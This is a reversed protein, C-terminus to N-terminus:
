KEKGQEINCRWWIDIIKGTLETITNLQGSNELYDIISLHVTSRLKANEGAQGAYSEL